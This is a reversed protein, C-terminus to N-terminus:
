RNNAVNNDGNRSERDTIEWERCGYLNVAHELEELLEKAKENKLTFIQHKFQLTIHEIENRM